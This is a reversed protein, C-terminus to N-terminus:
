GCRGSREPDAEGPRSSRAKGKRPVQGGDEGPPRGGPLGVLEREARGPDHGAVDQLQVPCICTSYGEPALVMGGAPIASIWCSPRSEPLWHSGSDRSIEAFGISASRYILLDCAASFTGCFNKGSVSFREAQGTLPNTELLREEGTHLDFAWPLFLTDGVIFTHRM